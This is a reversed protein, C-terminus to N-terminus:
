ALPVNEVLGSADPRVGFWLEFSEAGQEVLMGRGDVSRAAGAGEAWDLFPRAAPGYTLDYCWAATGLAGAPVPPRQGSLGAATANVLLDFPEVDDLVAYSCGAARPDGSARALEIAREATRNAIFLATPGASLLPGLIGAAAGGAGAVLVRRGAPDFGLNVTLDRFFGAGDTNDGLWGGGERKLTNVAGAVRARETLTVCCELAERKLPLTVNGGIGGGDAFTALAEALAGPETDRLEYDLEVGARRALERHLWPSVSHAVPHGFLALRALGRAM